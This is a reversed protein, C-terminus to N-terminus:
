SNEKVMVNNWALLMINDAEFSLNLKPTFTPKLQTPRNHINSSFWVLDTRLNVPWLLFWVM